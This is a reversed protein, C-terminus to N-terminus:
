NYRSKLFRAPRQIGQYQFKRNLLTLQRQHVKGHRKQRYGNIKGYDNVNEGRGYWLGAFLHIGYQLSNKRHKKPLEFAVWVRGTKRERYINM